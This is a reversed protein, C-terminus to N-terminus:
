SRLLKRLEPETQLEMLTFNFLKPIDFKANSYVSPDTLSEFYPDLLIQFAKPRKNPNYTLLKGLIELCNPSSNRILLKPWNPGGIFPLPRKANNYNLAIMDDKTPTGLIKIICSFQDISDVGPFLAECTVLEAFVAGCSWIDVAVTYKQAGCILEPARYYRSCIYALNSEDPHLVKASGFDCIKLTGKKMDVLINSPKIDRHCINLSHLYGMGRFLQYVFSKVLLPPLRERQMKFTKIINEASGPMFEFALNYYTNDKKGDTMFYFKLIVINPHSLKRSIPLERHKYNQDQLVTKLAVRENNETLYLKVTGFSGQGIVREEILQINTPIDEGYNEDFEPTFNKDISIKDYHYKTKEQPVFVCYTKCKVISSQRRKSFGTINNDNSMIKTNKETTSRGPIISTLSRNLSSLFAKTKSPSKVSRISANPTDNMM